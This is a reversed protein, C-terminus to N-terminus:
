IYCYIVLLNSTILIGCPPDARNIERSALLGNREKPPAAGSVASFSLWVHLVCWNLMQRQGLVSTMTDARQRTADKQFVKLIDFSVLGNRPPASAARLFARLFCFAVRM